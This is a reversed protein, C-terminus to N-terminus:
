QGKLGFITSPTRLIIRLDFWLNRNKIYFLDYELKTNTERITAPYGFNVQAWGTVGPKVLLRARYFPVQKQLKEVLQPRESRPGVLSMEGRLVNLFQPFEDLHTKRLFGGVKTIREDEASAWEAKGDEEANQWMTRFKIIKYPSAGRGLRTQLYFVPRGSEILIALSIFPLLILFIITGILSGIIDLLRKGVRYFGSVRNEDVFSRLIWDSELLEIPVRQMLEEYALPMRTIDVGLEQADLLSQFTRGYMEGTIAVIIDSIYKDQIIDLIDKGTGVVKCGEIESGIKEPDDDICGLISFPKPEIDNFVQLLIRGSRGAGVVLVRQLFREATFVSIYLYRWVLTLIPAVAVFVVVAIRPLVDKTITFYLGLYIVLGLVAATGVAKITEAWSSARRINYLETLLVLWIAPLYYFWTPVHELLFFLNFEYFADRASWFLLSILLAGLGALLDGFVLLTRREVLRFRWRHEKQPDYSPKM